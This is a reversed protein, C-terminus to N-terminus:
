KTKFQCLYNNVENKLNRYEMVLDMFFGRQKEHEKSRIANYDQKGYEIEKKIAQEYRCLVAMTLTNKRRLGQIKISTSNKKILQKEIISIANLETHIFDIEDMWQLLEFLDKQLFLRRKTELTKAIQHDTQLIM